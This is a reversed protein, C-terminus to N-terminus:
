ESEERLFHLMWCLSLLDASGGPSLNRRTFDRDLARLTDANADSLASLEAVVAKCTEMDSRALMNTDATHLLISLLAAGGAEDPSKGAALEAELVPLGHQLVAPFGAEAEGRVGTVGYEKYFREGATDTSGSFDRGSVGRAMDSVESLVAAPTRWLDRDLRGLAGCLLGMSFIAGKHTNVGGTASLMEIEAVKGRLRLADFTERAPRAATRQGTRACDAFYPWLASTSRMFTYIDMDRHSGSNDRDVLGPKPTVCVEYLLARCALGAVTEADYRALTAQLIERTRSQLEDVTHIRRSACAKADGGCILCRRPVARDLKVGEPSLVDMDFLRGLEGYEEIEETLRKLRAADTDVVYLGECGTRTDIREEHVCAVRARAFQGHLLREGLLFGRRIRPSNKVPGAINMTFSVLPMGYESLLDQQRTARRERAELVEPLTVEREEM